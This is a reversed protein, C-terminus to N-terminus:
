LLQPLFLHGFVEVSSLCAVPPALALFFLHFFVEVYYACTITYPALAFIFPCFRGYIVPVPSSSQPLLLHSSFLSCRLSQFNLIDCSVLTHGMETQAASLM